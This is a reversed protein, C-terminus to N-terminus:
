IVAEFSDRCHTRAARVMSAQMIAERAHADDAFAAPVKLFDLGVSALKFRASCEWAGSALSVGFAPERLLSNLLERAGAILTFPQVAATAALLSVFRTQIAAIEAPWPSREIRLRFIEELIGSDSCHPYSAWDINIDNFSFEERLAQVFCKEDAHNTQTLTGDIDFMVLKM